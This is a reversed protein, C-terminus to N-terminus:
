NKTKFDSNWLSPDPQYATIVFCIGTSNDQSVVVHIPRANSFYLKLFSPFPTDQPYEKINEGNEIAAEVEDASIGRKFMQAIAHNSYEYKSCEM